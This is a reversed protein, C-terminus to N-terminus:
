QLAGIIKTSSSIFVAVCLFLHTRQVCNKIATLNIGRPRNYVGGICNMKKTSQKEHGTAVIAIDPRTNGEIITL